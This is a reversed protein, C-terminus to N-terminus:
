AGLMRSFPKRVFLRPGRGESHVAVAQHAHGALPPALHDISWDHSRVNADSKAFGAGGSDALNQQPRGELTRPVNARVADM